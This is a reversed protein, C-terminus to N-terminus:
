LLTIKKTRIKYGRIIINEKNTVFVDETYENFVEVTDLYKAKM